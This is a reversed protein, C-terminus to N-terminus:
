NDAKTVVDM